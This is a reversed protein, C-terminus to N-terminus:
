FPPTNLQELSDEESPGTKGLFRAGYEDSSQMKNRIFEPLADIEERLSENVDILKAANVMDPAELGKPLPSANQIDAYVNGNKENHVVNLLCAKGLLTDIDFDYAEDDSFKTGLMGEIFPRLHSKKGMSLGFERSVAYPREEEGDKFIKKENCLEFTFRIKDQSKEENQYVFHTTGIHIIQFLRAVHNGAPVPPNQAPRTAKM